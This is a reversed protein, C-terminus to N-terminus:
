RNINNLYLKNYADTREIVQVNKLKSINFIININFTQYTLEFFRM